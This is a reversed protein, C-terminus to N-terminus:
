YKVAVPRSVHLADPRYFVQQLLGFVTDGPVWGLRCHTVFTNISIKLYVWRKFCMKFTYTKTLFVKFETAHQQQRRRLLAVLNCEGSSTVAATLLKDYVHSPHYPGKDWNMSMDQEKNSWSSIEYLQEDEQHKTTTRVVRKLFAWPETM